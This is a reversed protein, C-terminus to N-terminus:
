AAVGVPWPVNEQLVRHEPTYARAWRRHREGLDEDTARRYSNYDARADPWERRMEWFLREKEDAACFSCLISPLRIDAPDFTQRVVRAGTRCVREACRRRLHLSAVKHWSRDADRDRGLVRFVVVRM